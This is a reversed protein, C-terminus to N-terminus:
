HNNKKNSNPLEEEEEGDNLKMMLEYLQTVEGPTLKEMLKEVAQRHEGRATEIKQKGAQTLHVLIVRRDEQSRVREVWGDKELNDIVLTMNGPSRHIRESIESLPIEEHQELALMAYFQSPTLEGFGGSTNLCHMLKRSTHFMLLFTALPKGISEPDPRNRM